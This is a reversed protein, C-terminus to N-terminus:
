LVKAVPVGMRGSQVIETEVEMAKLIEPGDLEPPDTRPMVSLDIYPGGGLHFTWCRRGHAKGGPCGLAFYRDNEHPLQFAYGNIEEAKHRLAEALEGASVADKTWPCAILDIDRKLTGHLGLAYGLSRAVERLPEILLAAKDHSDHACPKSRMWSGVRYVGVVNHVEHYDALRRVDTTLPDLVTGEELMVVFHNIRCSEHVRVNCVHSEAFPAPPWPERKPSGIYSFYEGKRATAYGHEVLYADIGYPHIGDKSFDIGKFWACVDAYKHGTVMALAAPGCGKAHEQALHKIASM